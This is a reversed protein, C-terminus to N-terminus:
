IHEKHGLAALRMRVQDEFTGMPYRQALEVYYECARGPDAFRTECLMGLRYLAAEIDDPTSDLDKVVADYLNAAGRPDANREIRSALIIMTASPVHVGAASLSALASGVSDAPEKEVIKPLLHMFAELCETSIGKVDTVSRAAWNLTVRTDTPNAKAMTALEHASLFRMDKLDSLMAKADSTDKSDRTGRVVWCVLAGAVAGAALPVFYPIGTAIGARQFAAVLLEFGLYYFALWYMRWPSVTWFWLIGYLFRVLGHPFLYLAAGVAGMIAGSAGIMPVDGGHAGFALHLAGAALGCVLYLVLFKATRLRGEVAFGFLYLFWMNGIFHWLDPHLFMHAFMTVPGANASSLGYRTVFDDRVFLGNTTCAYAAGNALILGITGFPFSEPPNQSKIPLLLM